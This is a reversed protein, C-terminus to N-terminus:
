QAPYSKAEVTPSVRRLGSRPRALAALGLGPTVLVIPETLRFVEVRLGVV